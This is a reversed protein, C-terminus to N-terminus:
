NRVAAIQQGTIRRLSFGEVEILVAGTEDTITIDFTGVERAGTNEGVVRIHSCVRAPLRGWITIRRYSLPLYLDDASEYGRILYLACGTAIDLLAPHIRYDNLDGRFEAPLESIAVGEQAGVHIRQLSHWRSGFFFYKEQKLPGGLFKIERVNCRSIIRPLSVPTPRVAKPEAA